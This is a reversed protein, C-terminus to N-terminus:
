PKTPWTITNPFGAQAPVDRLAQRYTTMESSMTVYSLAYFDTEALLSDRKARETEALASTVQADYDSQQQEVTVTDGNEDTYEVFKSATVWREKWIGDVQEIGDKYAIQYNNVSPADVAAVEEVGLARLTNSTWYQPLSMNKNEEILQVRTKPQGTALEVYTM